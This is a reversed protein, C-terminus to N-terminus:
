KKNGFCFMQNPVLAKSKKERVYTAYNKAVENVRTAFKSARKIRDQIEMINGQGEHNVQIIPMKKVICHAAIIGDIMNGSAIIVYILGTPKYHERVGSIQQETLESIKNFVDITSVKSAALSAAELEDM